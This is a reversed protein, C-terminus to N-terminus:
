PLDFSKKSASAAHLAVTFVLASFVSALLGHFKRCRSRVSPTFKTMPNIQVEYVFWGLNEALLIKLGPFFRMATTIREVFADCYSRTEARHSLLASVLIWCDCLRMSM